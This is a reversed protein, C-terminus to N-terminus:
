CISAKQFIIYYLLTRRSRDRRFVACMRKKLLFMHLLYQKGECKAKHKANARMQRVLILLKVKLM